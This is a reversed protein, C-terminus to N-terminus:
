DSHKEAKGDSWMDELKYFNRTEPTMIHVVVNVYDILVWKMAQYGEQRYPKEGCKEQVQEEVYESLAKIQPQNNAECIIFIDAVAEHINRLDLTLINEGKKAQIAGIITKIIKSNKTLRAASKKGKAKPNRNSLLALQEM